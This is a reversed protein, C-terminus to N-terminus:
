AASQGNPKWDEWENSALEVTTTPATASAVEVRIKGSKPDVEVAIPQLGAKLTARVARAYDTEKFAFNSRSV